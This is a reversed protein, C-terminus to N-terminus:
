GPSTSRRATTSPSTTRSRGKPTPPTCTSRLTRRARVLELANVHDAHGHTVLIAAVPARTAGLIKEPEAGADVIIDGEPAHVVYSNVEFGDMSLTVQEIETM